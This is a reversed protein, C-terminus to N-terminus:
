SSHHREQMWDATDGVGVKLGLADSQGADPFPASPPSRVWL